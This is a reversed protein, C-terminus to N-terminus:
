LGKFPVVLGRGGGGSVLAGERRRRGSTRGKELQALSAAPGAFRANRCDFQICLSDFQGSNSYFQVHIGDIQSTNPQLALRHPLPTPQSPPVVFNPCTVHKLPRPRADM